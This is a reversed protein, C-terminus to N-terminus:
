SFIVLCVETNNLLLHSKIEVIEQDTRRVKEREEIQKKKSLIQKKKKM